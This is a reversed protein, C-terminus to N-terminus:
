PKGTQHQIVGAALYEAKSRSVDRIGAFSPHTSSLVRRYAVAADADRGLAELLRAQRFRAVTNEPWVGLFRNVHLLAMDLRDEREYLFSLIMTADHRVDTRSRAVRELLRLGEAKDGSLGALSAMWRIEGPISGIMYQLVGQGMMADPRAPGMAVLRKTYGYGDLSSSLATRYEKRSAAVLSRYGHLGNLLLVLTTDTPEAKLRNEAVRIATESRQLFLAAQAPEEGAFFYTWFPMMASFFHAQPDGPRERTVAEFAADAAVWDTRYFAEVGATLRDQALGPLATLLLLLLGSRM